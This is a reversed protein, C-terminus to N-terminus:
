PLPFGKLAERAGLPTLHDRDFLLPSKGEVLRCAGGRCLNAMPSFYQARSSFETRMTEDLRARDQKMLRPALRTAGIQEYALILPVAVFYEPTPGYLVVEKGMERLYAITSKLPGIDAAEWRAALIVKPVAAGSAPLWERYVLDLIGCHEAGQAGLTPRCGAATAQMFNVSPHLAELSTVINAAHSDGIVLVNPKETSPRLCRDFGFERVSEQKPRLFCPGQFFALDQKLAESYRVAEPYGRWLAQSAAQMAIFILPLMLCCLGFVLFVRRRPVRGAMRRFPTEVYRWSLWGAVFSAVVVAVQVKVSNLSLLVAALSAIPWHVLYLSYSIQGTWRMFRTRLVANAVGGSGTGAVVCAAGLCPLLAAYGPFLTAENYLVCAAVILVVGISSLAARVM